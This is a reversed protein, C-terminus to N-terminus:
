FFNSIGQLLAGAASGTASIIGATSNGQAVQQNALLQAASVNPLYQQQPYVQPTKNMFMYVAVGAAGLILLTQTDIKGISKM